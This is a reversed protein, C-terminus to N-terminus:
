INKLHENNFIKRNNYEKQQEILQLITQEVLNLQSGGSISHVFKGNQYFHFLPVSRINNTFRLEADEKCFKISYGQNSVSSFKKEMESYKPACAKCPECWNTYLDIIVIDTSNILDQKHQSSLIEIVNSTSLDKTSKEDGPVRGLKDYTAYSM